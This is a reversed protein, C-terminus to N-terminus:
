VSALAAAVLARPPAGPSTQERPGAGQEMSRETDQATTPEHATTETSTDGTGQDGDDDTTPQPTRRPSPEAGSKRHSSLIAGALGGPKGGPEHETTGPIRAGPAVPRPDTPGPLAAIERAARAVQRLLDMDVPGKLKEIRELEKDVMSVLRRRITETADRPAQDALASALQGARRKKATRIMDAATPTPIPFPDLEPLLEGVRALEAVRRAPRIGRDLYAEEIASRQEATYVPDFRGM